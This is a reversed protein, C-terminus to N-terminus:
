RGVGRGRWGAGGAPRIEGAPFEGGRKWWQRGECLDQHSRHVRGSELRDVPPCLGGDKKMIRGGTKVVGQAAELTITHGLGPFLLRGDAELALKEDGVGREAVADEIAGDNKEGFVVGLFAGEPEDEVVRRAVLDALKQFLFLEGGEGANRDMDAARHGAFVEGERGKPPGLLFPKAKGGADRGSVRHLVGLVGPREDPGEHAVRAPRFTLEFAFEALLGPDGGPGSGVEEGAMVVVAEPAFGEAGDRGEVLDDGFRGGVREQVSRELLFGGGAKM